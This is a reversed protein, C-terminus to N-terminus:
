VRLSATVVAVGVEVKGVDFIFFSDDMLLSPVVAIGLLVVEILLLAESEVAGM